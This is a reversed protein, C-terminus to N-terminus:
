IHILSLIHAQIGAIYQIKIGPRFNYDDIPFDAFVSVMAYYFSLPVAYATGMLRFLETHRIMCLKEIDM